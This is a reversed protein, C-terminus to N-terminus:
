AKCTQTNPLWQGGSAQTGQRSAGHALDGAHTKRSRAVLPRLDAKPDM